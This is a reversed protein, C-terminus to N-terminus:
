MESIIQLLIEPKLISIKTGKSSIIKEDKFHRLMRVLTEKATGVYAAFDDRRISILSPGSHDDDRQYIRDLILLSMAVRERVGYHSFVTVKNIWASFELSLHVLLKKTFLASQDLLQFFLEAPIISIATNEIAMASLALPQDVLLLRYGFFDGKTYIYVISESGDRNVQFIKVKGKLLLYIGKAFSGEEFLYEGKGLEKRIMKKRIARTEGESFFDFLPQSRLYYKDIDFQV